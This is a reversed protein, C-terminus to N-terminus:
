ETMEGSDGAQQSFIKLSVHVLEKYCIEKHAYKISELEGSFERSIVLFVAM